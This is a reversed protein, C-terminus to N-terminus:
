KLQSDSTLYRVQMHKKINYSEKIQAKTGELVTKDHLFTCLWKHVDYHDEQIDLATCLLDYGEYILKRAEVDSATESMRYIAKSLRWLIEVDKSDQLLYIAIVYIYLM